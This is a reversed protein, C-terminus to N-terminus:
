FPKVVVLFIIVIMLVAPIENIMRFFRASFPRQEAYFQKYVRVLFGHYGALMFVLLLKLHLWGEHWDWLPLLLLGGGFLFTLVLAPLMIIRLLRHEMTLFTTSMESSPKTQSHYVFLRPLYLLGAMWSIVFIIHLSKMWLYYPILNEFM